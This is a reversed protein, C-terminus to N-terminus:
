SVKRRCRPCRKRACRIKVHLTGTSPPANRGMKLIRDIEVQEAESFNMLVRANKLYLREALCPAISRFDPGSEEYLIFHKFGVAPGRADTLPKTRAGIGIWNLKGSIGETKAQKGIGGVGIVAYFNRRRVRGM